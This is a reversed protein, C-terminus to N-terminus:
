KSKGGRQYLGVLRREVLMQLYTTVSVEVERRSIRYASGTKRVIAEITHEGDCLNWVFTGVEDLVIARTEPLRVFTSVVRGVKDKRTPITLTAEGAESVEYTVAPNRIPRVRMVTQRDVQPPAIKLFPLHRAAVLRLRDGLPVRM